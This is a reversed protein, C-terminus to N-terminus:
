LPLEGMKVHLSIKMREIIKTSGWFWEKIKHKMVSFFPRWKGKVVICQSFTDVAHQFLNWFVGFRSMNCWFGNQVMDWKNNQFMKPFTGSDWLNVNAEKQQQQLWCWEFVSQHCLPVNKYIYLFAVMWIYIQAAVDNM